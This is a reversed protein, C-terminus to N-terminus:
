QPKESHERQARLEETMEGLAGCMRDLESDDHARPLLALVDGGRIQHAAATVAALRRAHRGAFIWSLAVLAGAFFLGFAVVTRQLERVGAFAVAVPERVTVLWGLGRFDKFGRSRSYGTVFAAGDATNERLSGRGRRDTPVPPAAPPASGGLEGSDLLVEGTNSYVTAGVHERRLADPIVSLEVEHAWSWRLHAALIGVLEGNAGTVPVALDLFRLPGPEDISRVRDALEAYEHVSGIYAREHAARFWTRQDARTNEFLHQTTSVLTGAPDAFGLWAFDPSADLLADLVQRREAASLARNQFAPVNAALQLLRAHAHINRDLKDSIQVAFTELAAGSTAELRRRFVDGALWTLLVVFALAGSGVVLAARARLSLRPDFIWWWDATVGSSEARLPGQM